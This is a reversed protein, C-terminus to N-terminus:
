TKPNGLWGREQALLAIQFRTRAGLQRGLDSIHTQVTRRSLRLARAIADDKMGASMLRLIDRTRSHLAGEQGEASATPSAPRNELSLPAAREWVSEFLATLVELLTSSHVVLSGAAPDDKRLPMIAAAADFIVLKMPLGSLLRLEGEAAGRLATELCGDDGIGDSDYVSRLRVGARVTAGAATSADTPTIRSTVYPPKAFHLVEHRSSRLLHAYRAGVQEDSEVVEFLDSAIQRGPASHYVEHLQEAYLEAKALEQRKRALLAGLSSRPPSASWRTPQEGVHVALLEAELTRLTTRAAAASVGIGAAVADEDADPHSVLYELAQRALPGLGTGAWLEDLSSVNM